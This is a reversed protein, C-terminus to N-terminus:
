SLEQLRKKIGQLFTLLNYGKDADAHPKWDGAEVHYSFQLWQRGLHEVVSASGPMSGNSLRLEADVFFNDPPTVPYGPPIMVLLATESKSWGSPLPYRPIIFWSMDESVQIVGHSTEVLKLEAKRRDQM